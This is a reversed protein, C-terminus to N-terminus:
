FGHTARIQVINKNHVRRLMPSYAGLTFEYLLFKSSGLYIKPTGLQDLELIECLTWSLRDNRIIEERFTDIYNFLSDLEM